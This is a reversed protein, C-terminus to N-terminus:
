LTNRLLPYRDQIAAFDLVIEPAHNPTPDPEPEPEQEPASQFIKSLEREFAAMDIVPAASAADVSVRPPPAVWIADVDAAAISPPPEALVNDPRPALPHPRRPIAEIPPTPTGRGLWSIDLPHNDRSAERTLLDRWVEVVAKAERINELFDRESHYLRWRGTEFLETLHELRREALDCWRSVLDRGRALDESQLDHRYTM